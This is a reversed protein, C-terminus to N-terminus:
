NIVLLMVTSHKGMEKMNQLMGTPSSQCHTLVSVCKRGALDKNREKSGQLFRKPAPVMWFAIPHQLSTLKWSPFLIMVQPFILFLPNPCVFGCSIPVPEQGKKLGWADFKDAWNCLITDELYSFCWSHFLFVFRSWERNSCSGWWTHILGFREITCDGWFIKGPTQLAPPILARSPCPELGHVCPCPSLIEM